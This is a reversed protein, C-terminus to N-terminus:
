KVWKIAPTTEFKLFLVRSEEPCNEPRSNVHVKKKKKQPGGFVRLTQPFTLGGTPGRVM